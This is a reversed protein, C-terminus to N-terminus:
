PSHRGTRPRRPFPSSQTRWSTRFLREQFEMDARDTSSFSTCLLYEGVGLIHISGNSLRLDMCMTSITFLFFYGLSDMCIRHIWKHRLDVFVWLSSSATTRMMSSHSIHAWDTPNLPLPSATWSPDLTVCRIISDNGAWKRYISLWCRRRGRRYLGRNPNFILM